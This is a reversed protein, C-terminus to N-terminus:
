SIKYAFFIEIAEDNSIELLSIIMQVEEISFDYGGQNIKRNVTSRAVGISDALKEQTVNKEKMKGKLKDINVVIKVEKLRM